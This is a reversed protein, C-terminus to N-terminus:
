FRILVGFNISGGGLDIKSGFFCKTPDLECAQSSPLKGEVMQYRGEITFAYIDGRVPLRVGGLIVPGVATGTASYTAPFITLDSPDIFEGTESYRFSVIAIGAGVYPQVSGPRGFPLFRAVGTFPIQRLKNRQEIAANNRESNAQERYESPVTRMYYALGASAELRDSFAFNWEGSVNWFRFDSVDSCPAEFPDPFCARYRLAGSAGNILDGQTLNAVLVDGTARSDFGKPMFWGTGIQVSQVIQADAVAPVGVLMLLLVSGWRGVRTM